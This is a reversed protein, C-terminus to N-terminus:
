DTAQKFYFFHDPQLMYLAFPDNRASYVILKVLDEPVQCKQLRKRKEIQSFDRDCSLFSYDSVFFEHNIEEYKTITFSIWPFLM